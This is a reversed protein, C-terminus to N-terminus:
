VDLGNVDAVVVVVAPSSKEAALTSPFILSPPCEATAASLIKQRFRRNKATECEDNEDSKDDLMDTIDNQAEASTSDVALPFIM